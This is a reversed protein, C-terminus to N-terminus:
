GHSEIVKLPKMKAQTNNAKSTVIADDDDDDDVQMITIRLGKTHDM